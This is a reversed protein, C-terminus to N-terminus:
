RPQYLVAAKFFFTIFVCRAPNFSPSPEGPNRHQEVQLMILCLCLRWSIHLLRLLRTAVLCLKNQLRNGQVYSINCAPNLYVNARGWAIVRAGEEAARRGKKKRRGRERREEGEGGRERRWISWVNMKEMKKKDRKRRRAVGRGHLANQTQTNDVKREDHGM